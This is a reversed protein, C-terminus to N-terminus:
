ILSNLVKERLVNRFELDNKIIFNSMAKIHSMKAKYKADELLDVKDYQKHQQLLNSRIVHGMNMWFVLSNFREKFYQVEGIEYCYFIINRKYKEWIIKYKEIENDLYKYVDVNNEWKYKFTLIDYYFIKTIEFLKEKNYHDLLENFGNIFELIKKNKIDVFEKDIKYVVKLFYLLDDEDIKNKSKVKERLYIMVDDDNFLDWDIKHDNIWKYDTKIPDIDSIFLLRRSIFDLSNLNITTNLYKNVIKATFSKGSGHMGTFCIIPHKLERQIIKM